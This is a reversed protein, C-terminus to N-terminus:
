ADPLQQDLLVVDVTRSASLARGEAATNAILVDLAGGSLFDRVAECFIRDDDIILFTKKADSSM